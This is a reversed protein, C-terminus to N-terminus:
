VVKLAIQKKGEGIIVNQNKKSSIVNVQIEDYLPSFDGDEKLVNIEISDSSSKIELQLKFYKGDKYNFTEGDDDYFTFHYNDDNEGAYVNLTMQKFEKNLNSTWETQMIATGKKVFIPLEDLEAHILHARNGEYVEGTSYEVWMGEPLYVARDTVSPALIPAIIVNDGIM